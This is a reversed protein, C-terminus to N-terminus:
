VGEQTNEMPIANRIPSPVSQNQRWAKDVEAIAGAHDKGYGNKWVEEIENLSPSDRWIKSIEGLNEAESKVSSRMSKKVSRVGSLQSLLSSICFVHSLTEKSMGGLLESLEEMIKEEKDKNPLGFENGKESDLDADASSDDGLEEDVSKRCCHYADDRKFRSKNPGYAPNVVCSSSSFVKAIGVVSEVKKKADESLDSDKVLKMLEDVDILEKHLEPTLSKPLKGDKSLPIVYTSNGCKGDGDVTVKRAAQEIEENQSSYEGEPRVHKSEACKSEVPIIRERNDAGSLKDVVEVIEKKVDNTVVDSEMKRNRENRYNQVEIRTLGIDYVAKRVEACRSAWEPERDQTGCSCEGDNWPRVCVSCLDRGYYSNRSDAVDMHNAAIEVAHDRDVSTKEGTMFNCTVDGPVLFVNVLEDVVVCKAAWEINRSMEGCECIGDHWPVCCQYCYDNGDGTTMKNAETFHSSSMKLVDDKTGLLDPNKQLLELEKWVKEGLEVSMTVKTDVDTLNFIAVGSEIRFARGSGTKFLIKRDSSLYFRKGMGRNCMIMECGSSRKDMTFDMDEVTLFDFDRM